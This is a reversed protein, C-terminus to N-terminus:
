NSSGSNCGPDNNVLMPPDTRALASARERKTISVPPYTRETVLCAFSRNDRRTVEIDFVADQLEAIDGRKPRESAGVETAVESVLSGAQLRAVVSRPTRSFAIAPGEIGAVEAAQRLVRRRESFV